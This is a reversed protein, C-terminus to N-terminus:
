DDLMFSLDPINDICYDDGTHTISLPMSGTDSRMWDVCWNILAGGFHRMICCRNRLFSEEGDIVLTQFSSEDSSSRSLLWYDWGANGAGLDIIAFGNRTMQFVSHQLSALLYAADIVSSEYEPAYIGEGQEDSLAIVTVTPKDLEEQLTEYVSDRCVSYNSDYLQYYFVADYNVSDNQYDKLMRIYQKMYECYRGMSYAASINMGHVRGDLGYTEAAHLVDEENVKLLLVEDTPRLRDYVDDLMPIMFPETLVLLRRSYTIDEFPSEAHEAWRSISGQMDYLSWPSIFRVDLTDNKVNEDQKLLSLFNVGTMVNDAYGRDGLQGPAFVVMVELRTKQGAHAPEDSDKSCSAAMFLSLLVFTRLLSLFGECRRVRTQIYEVTM